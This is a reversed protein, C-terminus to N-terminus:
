ENLGFHSPPPIRNLIEDLVSTVQVARAEATQWSDPLRGRLQAPIGPVYDLRARRALERLRNQKRESRLTVPVAGHTLDLLMGERNGRQEAWQDFWHLVAASLEAEGASSFIIVDAERADLTATQALLPDLLFDTRWWHFDFEVETWFNRVLRDCTVMARERTSKDEYLVVVSWTEGTASKRLTSTISDNVAQEGVPQWHHECGCSARQLM